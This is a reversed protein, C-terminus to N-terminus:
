YAALLISEVENKTLQRPANALHPYTVALKALKGLDGKSVDFESLRSPLNVELFLRRVGEVAKIAAEIVSIDAVNEELSRAINVYRAPAATLYYEMVHPLILALAFHFDLKTETSLAMSVAYTVGLPSSPLSSGTMASGWLMNTVAKENDPERYFTNLNKKVLDIVRLILTSTIPNAKISLAVEIAYALLAGGIRAAEDSTLHSSIKPDYFCAKPFITENDYYKRVGSEADVITFGPVLEEGLTPEIPITIIPLAPKKAKAKGNLLDAAFCSNNALIAVAKATNFSDIGGYGVIVDAHSKKAFYVVSDIQETDPEGYLDDYVIAGESHKSLGNKIIALEDQNKQDKRINILLARSGFEAIWSGM